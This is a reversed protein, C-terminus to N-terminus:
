ALKKETKLINKIEEYNVSYNNKEIYDLNTQKEWRKQKLIRSFALM